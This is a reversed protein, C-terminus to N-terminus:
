NLFINIKFKLIGIGAITVIIYPVKHFCKKNSLLYTKKNWDAQMIIIFQPLCTIMLIM